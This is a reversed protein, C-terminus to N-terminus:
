VFRQDEKALLELAKAIREFPEVLDLHTFVTELLPRSRDLDDQHELAVGINVTQFRGSPSTM